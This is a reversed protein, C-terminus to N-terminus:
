NDIKLEDIITNWAVVLEEPTVSEPLVSPNFSSELFTEAEKFTITDTFPFSDTHEICFTALEKITM